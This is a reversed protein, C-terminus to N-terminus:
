TFFTNDLINTSINMYRKRADQRDSIGLIQYVQTGYVLRMRVTLDDRYRIIWNVVQSYVVRDDEVLVNGRGESKGAWVSPVGEIENWLTIKDENSDGEVITPEIFTVRRDLRGISM